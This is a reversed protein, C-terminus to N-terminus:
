KPICNLCCFDNEPDSTISFSSLHEECYSVHGCFDCSYLEVDNYNYQEDDNIISFNECGEFNCTQASPMFKDPVIDAIKRMIEHFIDLEKQHRKECKQKVEREISIIKEVLEQKSMTYYDLIKRKKKNEKRKRKRRDAKKLKRLKKKYKETYDADKDTLVAGKALQEAKCEPCVSEVDDDYPPHFIYDLQDHVNCYHIESECNYICRNLMKEEAWGYKDNLVEVERCGPFACRSVFPILRDPLVRGMAEYIERNRKYVKEYKDNMVKRVNKEITLILKILLDKNM